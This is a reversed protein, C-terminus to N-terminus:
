MWLCDEPLGLSLLFLSCVALQLLPMQLFELKMTLTMFFGIKKPNDVTLIQFAHYLTFIFNVSM